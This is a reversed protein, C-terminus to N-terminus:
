TAAAVFAAIKKDEISTHSVFWDLLFAVLADLDGAVLKNNFSDILDAHLERHAALHHYCVEEMINEESVFHYQVYMVIENLLRKARAPDDSRELNEKLEMVLDFFIMHEFDIRKHGIEFRTEWRMEPLDM